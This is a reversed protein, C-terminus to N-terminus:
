GGAPPPPRARQPPRRTSRHARRARRVRPGPSAPPPCPPQTLDLVLDLTRTLYYTDGLDTRPWDTHVSYSMM